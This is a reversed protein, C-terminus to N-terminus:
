TLRPCFLCRKKYSKRLAARAVRKFGGEGDIVDDCLKYYSLIVNAACLRDLLGNGDIM